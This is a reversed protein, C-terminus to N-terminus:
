GCRPPSARAGSVAVVLGLERARGSRGAGRRGRARADHQRRGRPRERPHRPRRRPGRAPDARRVRLRRRRRRARRPAGARGAGARRRRRRLDDDVPLRRPWPFPQASASCTAPRAPPRPPRSARPCAGSRWGRPTSGPAPPFTARAVVVPTRPRAPPRARGRPARRGLRRARRARSGARAAARRAAPPDDRCGPGDCRRCIWCSARRGSWACRPGRPARAIGAAIALGRGRAGGARAPAAWAGRRARAPGPGRRHGRNPVRGPRPRARRAGDRRRARGRQRRPQGRRRSGCRDGRVIAGAGAGAEVCVVAAGGRGAAVGGGSPWRQAWSWPRSEGPGGAGGRRAGRRPGRAGPRRACSSSSRRRGRRRRREGALGHLGLRAACLPGRLEHARPRGAGARALRPAGCRAGAGPRWGGLRLALGASVEVPGDVLRYGVGWVNVVFRDGGRGLKHRLRCAHSDLTRTAGLSRFGWVDRLLEEKTFVRTPEAALARLLAFEKQSLEM